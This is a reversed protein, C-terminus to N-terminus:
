CCKRVSAGVAIREARADLANAILEVVSVEAADASYMEALDRILNRFNVSSDHQAM